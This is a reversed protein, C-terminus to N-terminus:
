GVAVNEEVPLGVASQVDGSICFSSVSIDEWWEGVIPVSLSLKGFSLVALTRREGMKLLLGGGVDEPLICLKKNRIINVLAQFKKVEVLSLFVSIEYIRMKKKLCCHRLPILPVNVKIEGALHM